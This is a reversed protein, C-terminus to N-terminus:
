KENLDAIRRAFNVAIESKGCGAEGIFLFNNYGKCSELIENDM